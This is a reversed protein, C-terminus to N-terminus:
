CFRKTAGGANQSAPRANLIIGSGQTTLMLAMQDHCYAAHRQSNSLLSMRRAGWESCEEVVEIPQTLVEAEDGAGVTVTAIVGRVRVPKEMAANVGRKTAARQKKVQSKASLKKCWGRRSHVANAQSKLPSNFSLGPREPHRAQLEKRECGLAGGQLRSIVAGAGEGGTSVSVQHHNHHHHHILRLGAWATGFQCAGALVSFIRGALLPRVTRLHLAGHVTAEVEGGVVLM